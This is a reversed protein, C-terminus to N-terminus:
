RALEQRRQAPREFISLGERFVEACTAGTWDEEPWPEGQAPINQVSGRYGGRVKRFTVRLVDASGPDFPDAGKEIYSAVAHHFTEEDFCGAAAVYELRPGWARMPAPAPAASAQQARVSPAIAFMALCLAM